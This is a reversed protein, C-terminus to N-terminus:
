SARWCRVSCWVRNKHWALGLDTPTPRFLDGCHACVLGGERAQWCWSRQSLAVANGDFSPVVEHPVELRRADELWLRWARHPDAGSYCVEAWENWGFQARGFRRWLAYVDAAMRTRETQETTDEIPTWRYKERLEEVTPRSM